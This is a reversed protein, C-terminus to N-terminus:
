LHNWRETVLSLLHHIPRGTARRVAAAYPPMNTCELVLSRVTPVRRVLRLAAATVDLEAAATDIHPLDNLLTSHLSCGPSLGEVPTNARAGAALLHAASLSPADVTIVGPSELEPLKLLSSTWVPVPLAAQLAAQFQVLFGCSTTVAAAGAKVLGQGAAIFPELLAADGERVVRHPSAGQVVAFRVPMPWSQPNGADGPVRPFRTDLMLVGLHRPM